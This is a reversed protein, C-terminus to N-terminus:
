HLQKQTDANPQKQAEQKSKEIVTCIVCLKAECQGWFTNGCKECKKLAM